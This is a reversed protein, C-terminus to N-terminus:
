RTAIQQALQILLEGTTPGAPAEANAKSSWKARWEEPAPEDPKLETPDTADLVGALALHQVAAFADHDSGIDYVGYIPAGADILAHQVDRVEVDAPAQNRAVALAALAGIAQGQLMVTPQLRTCGNVIHTIAINKEGALLCADDSNPLFVGIPIQFPASDPYDEHLREAPPLHHKSHHHDLFYDGIAIANPQIPARPNGNQAVVDATTMMQGNDLRRSERMYPILPLHDATPYEDTALVWEPHGLEQQMYRVYQMTHLKASRIHRRRYYCDEFVAENIPYDNSHHPWNLMVKDNPLMGYTIFSEWDHVTHNLLVEDPNPCKARTSCAFSQRYEQEIVTAAPPPPTGPKRALTAVYTLDQMEMDPQEPASAEGTEDQSERGLRYRAGALKLGDGYETGDIFVACRYVTTEGNPGITTVLRRTENEREYGVVETQYQVTLGDVPDVLERLFRQGIHPEYCTLSVWGSFLAEDSGYHALLKQRFEHVLGGGFGFKNGDLASVGASTIMGGLWVTPEIVTVRAGMRAAQIAACTGGAGGGYVLIDTEVLRRGGLRAALPVGALGASLLHLFSRRYM